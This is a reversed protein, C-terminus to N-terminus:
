LSLLDLKPSPADMALLDIVAPPSAAVPMLPYAEVAGDHTFAHRIVYALADLPRHRNASPFL